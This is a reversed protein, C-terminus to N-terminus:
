AAEVKRAEDAVYYLALVDDRLQWAVDHLHPRRDLVSALNDAAIQATAALSRRRLSDTKIAVASALGCRILTATGHVAYHIEPHADRQSTIEEETVRLMDILTQTATAM